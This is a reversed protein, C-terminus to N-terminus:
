SVSIDLGSRINQSLIQMMSGPYKVKESNRLHNQHVKRTSYWQRLVTARLWSCNQRLPISLLMQLCNQNDDCGRLINSADLSYLGPTNGSIQLACSLLGEVGWFVSQDLINTSSLNFLETQFPGCRQITLIGELSQM